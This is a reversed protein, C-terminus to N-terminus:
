FAGLAIRTQERFQELPDRPVAIGDRSRELKDQVIWWIPLSQFRKDYNKMEIGVTRVRPFFETLDFSFGEEGDEDM